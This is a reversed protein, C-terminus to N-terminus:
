NIKMVLCRRGIFLLTLLHHSFPTVLCDSIFLPESSSFDSGSKQDMKLIPVAKWTWAQIPTRKNLPLYESQDVINTFDEM